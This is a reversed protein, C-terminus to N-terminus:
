VDLLKETKWLVERLFYFLLERPKYRDLIPEDEGLSLKFHELFHRRFKTKAQEGLYVHDNSGDLYLYSPFFHEDKQDGLSGEDFPLTTWRFDAPDQWAVCTNSTGFDIAAVGQYVSSPESLTVDMSMLVSAEVKGHVLIELTVAYAGPAFTMGDVFLRVDDVRLNKVFVGKADPEIEIHMPLLACNAPKVMFRVEKISVDNLIFGEESTDKLVVGIWEQHRTLVKFPGADIELPNLMVLLPVSLAPRDKFTFQIEPTVWKGPPLKAEGLDVDFSLKGEDLDARLNKVWQSGAGATIGTISARQVDTSTLGTVVSVLSGDGASKSIIAPEATVSPVRLVAVPCTMLSKQGDVSFEVTIQLEKVDTDNSWTEPRKYELPLDLAVTSALPLPLKGDSVAISNGFASVRNVTVTDVHRNELHLMFRCADPHDLYLRVGQDDLRLALFPLEKGCFGCYKDGPLRPWLSNCKDCLHAM